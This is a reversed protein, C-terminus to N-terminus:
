MVLSRIFLGLLREFMKTAVGSSYLRRRSLARVVPCQDLIRLSSRRVVSSRFSASHSRQLWVILLADIQDCPVAQSHGLELLTCCEVLLQCPVRPSTLGDGLCQGSLLM